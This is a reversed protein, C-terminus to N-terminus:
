KGADRKPDFKIEIPKDPIAYVDNWIVKQFDNTPKPAWGQKCAQEYTVQKWPTVGRWPLSREFSTQVDSGYGLETLRDLDKACLVDARLVVPDRPMFAGGAFAFARLIEVRVRHALKERDAGEKLAAVNVIAWGAEPATLLSPLGPTDAIVVGIKGGANKIDDGPNQVNFSDVDKVELLPHVTEDIVKLAKSFDASPVTKQANLFVVKGIASNPKRVYGGFQKMQIRSRREARQEPTLKSKFEQKAGNVTAIVGVAVFAAFIMQKKM